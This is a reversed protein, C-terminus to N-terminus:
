RPKTCVMVVEERMSVPLLRAALWSLLREHSRRYPGISLFDVAPALFGTRALQASVASATLPRHYPITRGQGLIRKLTVAPTVLSWLNPFVMYLGGGPRLVRHAEALFRPWHPVHEILLVSTLTDFTSSAFPLRGCDATASPLPCRRLSDLSFDSCFVPRFGQDALAKALIGRGGGVDLLPGSLPRAAMFRGIVESVFGPQEFWQVADAQWFDDWTRHDPSAM